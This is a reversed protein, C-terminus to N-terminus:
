CDIEDGEPDDDLISLISLCFDMTSESGEQRGTSHGAMYGLTWTVVAIAFPLLTLFIRM